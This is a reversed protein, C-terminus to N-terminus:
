LRRFNPPNATLVRCQAPGLGFFSEDPFVARRDLGGGGAPDLLGKIPQIVQAADPLERRLAAPRRQRLFIDGRDRSFVASQHDGLGPVFHAADIFRDPLLQPRFSPDFSPQDEIGVLRKVPIGPLRAGAENIYALRFDRDVFALAVPVTSFMTELSHLGRKYEDIDTIVGAWSIIRGELDRIPRARAMVWRYHGDRRLSRFQSELPESGDIARGVSAAVKARDDPHVM